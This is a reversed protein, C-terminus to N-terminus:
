IYDCLWISFLICNIAGVVESNTSRKTNLKQKPSKKHILWRGFTMRGGTHDGMGDHTAYPMDMFNLIKYLNEDGIVLNEGITQNLSKLVRILKVWGHIELDKM